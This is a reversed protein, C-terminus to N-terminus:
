LPHGNPKGGLLSRLSILVWENLTPASVGQIFGWVAERVTEKATGEPVGKEAVVEAILGKFREYIPEASGGARLRRWLEWDTPTPVLDLPYPNLLM